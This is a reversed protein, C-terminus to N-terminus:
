DGQMQQSTEQIDSSYLFDDNLDPNEVTQQQIQMTNRVYKNSPIKYLEQDNKPRRHTAKFSKKSRASSKRISHASTQSTQSFSIASSSKKM